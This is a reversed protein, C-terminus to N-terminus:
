GIRRGAQAKANMRAILPLLRAVFARNTADMADSARKGLESFGGDGDNNDDFAVCFVPRPAVVEPDEAKGSGAARQGDPLIYVRKTAGEWDLRGKERLRHFANAVFGVGYGSQKALEKMSAVPRKEYIADHIEGM